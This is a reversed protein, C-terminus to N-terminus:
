VRIDGLRWEGLVIGRQKGLEACTDYLKLSTEYIENIDKSHLIRECLNTYNRPLNKLERVMNITATGRRGLYSRNILAVFLNTSLVFKYSSEKIKEFSHAEFSDKIKNIDETLVYLPAIAAKTFTNDSIKDIEKNLKQITDFKDYIAKSCLVEGVNFPWDDNVEKLTKRLENLPFFEWGVSIGNDLRYYQENLKKKSIIVLDLDSHELDEGSGTSGSVGIYLIEGSYKKLMRKAITHAIQM